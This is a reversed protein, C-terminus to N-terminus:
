GTQTVRTSLFFWIAAAAILAALGKRLLVANPSQQLFTATQGAMVAIGAHIITAIGVYIASLMAIQSPGNRAPDVFQPLIAAYFLYAKPNLANTFLGQVFNRSIPGDQQVIEDDADRWADYALYLLYLTGSWRLAEFLVPFEYLLASLGLGAVVAAVSLGLAIGAVAALAATRGRSAGLVALWTMNPGPTLEILIAALVFSWLM